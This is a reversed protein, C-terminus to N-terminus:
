SLEVASHLNSIISHRHRLYINATIRSVFFFTPGLCVFFFFVFLYYFVNSIYCSMPIALAYFAPLCSPFPLQKNGDHMNMIHHCAIVIVWEQTCTCTSTQVHLLWTCFNYHFCYEIDKRCQLQMLCSFKHCQTM